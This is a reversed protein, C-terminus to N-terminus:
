YTGNGNSLYNDYYIYVNEFSRLYSDNREIIDGLQRSIRATLEVEDQWERKNVDVCAYQIPLKRACNFLSSFLRKRTEILDLTTSSEASSRDQIFLTINM